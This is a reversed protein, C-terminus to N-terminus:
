RVKKARAGGLFLGSEAVTDLTPKVDGCGCCDLEPFAERHGKLFLQMRKAYHNAKIVHLNQLRDVEGASTNQAYEDNSKYVGLNTIKNAVIPVVDAVVREIMYPTIYDDLLDRYAVNENALISGDGILDLIKKYLCSGLYEQLYLDQATRIAPLLSKGYLNDSLESNTRITDESIVLVKTM